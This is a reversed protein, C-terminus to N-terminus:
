RRDKMERWWAAIGSKVARELDVDQTAYVPGVTIPPMTALMMELSPGATTAAPAYGGAQAPLAAVPMARTAADRVSPNVIARLAENPLVFGPTSSRLLEAGDGGLVRMSGATVFLEPGAEGTLYTRGPAVPGGEALVGGLTVISKGVSLVKGLPSHEITHVIDVVRNYISEFFGGISKVVSEVKGFAAVAMHAGSTALNAVWMGATKLGSGIDNILDRFPKYHEYLEYAGVGVAAVAAVIWGIIPVAALLGGAGALLGGGEAAGAGGLALAGADEGGMAAVGTIARGSLRAGLRGMMSGSTRGAFGGEVGEVGRLGRSFRTGGMILGSGVSGMAGPGMGLRNLLFLSGLVTNGGPVTNAIKEILKLLTTLPPLIAAISNIMGAADNGRSLDGLSHGITGLLHGMSDLVPITDTFFKRISNQGQASGSWEKFNKAMGEIGAGMHDSLPQAGRFVNLIGHGMDSLVHLFSMARNFARDFFAQVKQPNAALWGDVKRMEGAFRDAFGQVMPGAGVMIHRVADLGDVVSHGLTRVLVTNRAMILDLDSRAGVMRDTGEQVTQAVAGTLGIFGGRLSPLLTRINGLSHELYPLAQHMAEERMGRMSYTLGYVDYALAQSSPGLRMLAQNAQQSAPGATVMAQVAKQVGGALFSVAGFTSIAALGLAPIAGATGLLPALGAVAAVGAAGLSSVGGILSGFVDATSILKLGSFAKTLFGVSSAARLMRVGLQDTKEGLLVKARSLDEVSRKADRHATSLMTEVRVTDQATLVGKARIKQAEQEVSLLRLQALRNQENAREVADLEHRLRGAAISARDMGVAAAEGGAGTEAFARAADRAQRATEALEPSIADEFLGRITVEDDDGPPV